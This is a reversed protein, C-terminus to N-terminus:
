LILMLISRSTKFLFSKSKISVFPSVPLSLILSFEQDQTGKIEDYCCTCTIPLTHPHSYLARSHYCSHCGPTCLLSGDIKSNRFCHWEDTQCVSTCKTGNLVPLQTAHKASIAQLRKLLLRDTDNQIKLRYRGSPATPNFHWLSGCQKKLRFM